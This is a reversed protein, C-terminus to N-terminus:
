YPLIGLRYLAYGIWLVLILYSFCWGITMPFHKYIGKYNKKYWDAFYWCVINAVISDLLVFYYIVAEVNLMM